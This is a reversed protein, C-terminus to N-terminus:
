SSILLESRFDQKPISNRKSVPLYKRTSARPSSLRASGTLAPKGASFGATFAAASAPDLVTMALLGLTRSSRLLDFRFRL